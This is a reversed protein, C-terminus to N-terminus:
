PRKTWACRVKRITTGQNTTGNHQQARRPARKEHERHATSRRRHEADVTRHGDAFDRGQGRTAGPAFDPTSCRATAIGEATEGGTTDDIRDPRRATSGVERGLQAAHKSRSGPASARRTGRRRTPQFGRCHHEPGRAPPPASRTPAQQDADRVAAATEVGAILPASKGGRGERAAAQTPCCSISHEHHERQARASSASCIRGQSERDRRGGTASASSGPPSSARV